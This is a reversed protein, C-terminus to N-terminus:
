RIIGDDHAALRSTTSLQAKMTGITRDTRESNQEAFLFSNRLNKRIQPLLLLMMIFIIHLMSPTTVCGDFYYEHTQIEILTTHTGDEVSEFVECRM